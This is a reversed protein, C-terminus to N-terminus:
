GGGNADIGIGLCPSNFFSKGTKTVLRPRSMERHTERPFLRPLLGGREWRELRVLEERLPEVGRSFRSAACRLLAPDFLSYISVLLFM